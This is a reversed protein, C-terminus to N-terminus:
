RAFRKLSYNLAKSFDDIKKDVMKELKPLTDSDVKDVHVLSEFNFENKFDNKTINPVIATLNKNMLDSTPIQALEFLKQTMDAPVVGTGKRMFSLNGDKGPVLVLEDGFQPEDTIAWEDRTTGTTGKAHKTYFWTERPIIWKGGRQVLDSVKYYYNTKPDQYYEVGDVLRIRSNLVSQEGIEMDKSLQMLGRLTVNDTPYTPSNEYEDGNNNRNNVTIDADAARTETDIIQQYLNSLSTSATQVNTAIKSVVNDMVNGVGTEFADAATTGADWPSVLSDGVTESFTTLFGSQSWTNMLALADGSYDGVASQANEWPTTLAPDLEVGTNQYETLIAGANLAVMTTVNSLFTTMDSTAEEFSTRMGEIMKTMTEEYAAAEADLAENQADKAHDYYTDNLAERSDYLEAELKRREAIDAANTSGSLSAIRREIAAIDKAQKQVNKKFDYLDREADLAEKVSDIYDNYGDILTNVYEETADISSEYMDVISQETDSISEAFSYQQAILEETKDYYEQESHIGLAAYYDENGAYEPQYKALEDVTEQYGQKYMELDQVYSGLVAVGANTFGGEEDFWDEEGDPAILNRITELKSTLNDLRTNFEEFKYTDIEGIADQLDVVSAVVSDLESEIDNLTNAVEWWEESGEPLTALYAEAAEKQQGLLGLRENELAIQEEYYSADAKQGKAELLDIENQLQEYRAQNAGIRNEWYDMEKQFDDIIDDKVDEDDSDSKFVDGINDKNLGNILEYNGELRKIEEDQEELAKEADEIDKQLGAKKALEEETAYKAVVEAVKDGSISNLTEQYARDYAETWSEETFLSQIGAWLGAAGALVKDWASATVAAAMETEVASNYTSLAAEANSKSTEITAKAARAEELAKLASAKMSEIRAEILNEEADEALVLKGESITLVKSYDDTYEMLQLATEISVHGNQSMEEQASNLADIADSTSGIADALEEFTNILGDSDELDSFVDKFNTQVETIRIDLVSQVGFNEFMELAHETDIKGDNIDQILKAIEERTKDSTGKFYEAIATKNVKDGDMFQGIDKFADPLKATANRIEEAKGELTDFRATDALRTFYDIADQAELGRAELDKVLDENENIINAISEAASEDGDKLVSVYYDIAKSMDSFEDKNFIGKISNTKANVDGRAMAYTDQLEALYDLARDSEESDGYEVGDLADSIPTIYDDIANAVKDLEKQYKEREKLTSANDLKSKIDRYKAINDTVEDESRKFRINTLTSQNGKADEVVRAAQRGVLGEKYKKENELLDKRRELEDNAERLRDLEEQEAFTLTDKALLEEMREHTTELESNVSDLESEIDSLSSKFGELEEKFKETPDIANKLLTILKTLGESIFTMLYSMGMSMAANLVTTAAALGLQGIKAAFTKSPVQALQTNSQELFQNFGAQTAQGGNLSAVYAKMADSVGNTKTMYDNLAVSGNAAAKNIADIQTLVTQEGGVDDLSVQKTLKASTWSKIEPTNNKQGYGLGKAFEKGATAAGAKFKNFFNATSAGLEKFVKGGVKGVEKFFNGIPKVVPTFFKKIAGGAVTAAKKIGSFAKSGWQGVKDFVGKLKSPIAKFASVVGDALKKWAGIKKEVTKAGGDDDIIYSDKEDYPIKRSKQSGETTKRAKGLSKLGSALSAFFNKPKKDDFAENVNNGVEELQNNVAVLGQEEPEIIAPLNQGPLTIRSNAKNNAKINDILTEDYIKEIAKADDNAAEVAKTAALERDKQLRDRLATEPNRIKGKARLEERAKEKDKRLRERLGGASASGDQVVIEDNKGNKFLKQGLGKVKNFAQSGFSVVKDFAGKIKSTFPKLATAIDGFAKSGFERIKGFANKAKVTFGGLLDSIRNIKKETSKDDVVAEEDVQRGDKSKAYLNSNRAKLKALQTRRAARIDDKSSTKLRNLTKSGSQETEPTVPVLGREQPAPLALLSQTKGSKLRDQKKGKSLGKAVDGGTTEANKKMKGFSKKSWEVVKDFIGKIKSPISKFADVVVNSIRKWTNKFSKETKKNKEAWFADLDFMDDKNYEPKSKNTSEDARPTYPVLGTQQAQVVSSENKKDTSKASRKFLAGLSKLAGKAKVVLSTFFNQPKTEDFAENVNEKLEELQNNVPVLGREPATLLPTDSAAPLAIPKEKKFTALYGKIKDLGKLIINVDKPGFFMKAFSIDHKHMLYTMFAVFATRVLGIGDVIKILQTALDVFWKVVDSDLTNSWMAQVANNFQDIKGQISDLYRENEKLASGSSNASTEIVNEVTDFNQILASLVNAQRKGGMLELASARQIDTMDQWAEAMERLIQTSNKFTNADLMIDVKGGTLALLKAQLQSTTTAMDSVDEGM